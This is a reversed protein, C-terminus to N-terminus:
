KLTYHMVGMLYTKGSGPQADLISITHSNNSITEHLQNFLKMQSKSLTLM